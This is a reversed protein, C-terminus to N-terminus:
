GEMYHIDFWIVDCPIEKERFTDAIERVRADPYYSWRCQHYGLSWRPPMSITGTLSALGKTVEQPSKGEVVIVPFSPANEPVSFVIGDRLDLQSIWTTDFLIGFSSGDERVGMVWPHSQYLSEQDGYQPRDKNELDIRYGNRLLSGTVEGTGYLDIEPGVEFFAYKRSNANAFVPRMDWSDKLKSVGEFQRQLAMSPPLKGIDVGAAYFRAVNDFLMEATGTATANAQLEKVLESPEDDATVIDQWSDAIVLEDFEWECGVEGCRLRIEDFSLEAQVSNWIQKPQREISRRCMPDLAVSVEADDSGAPNIKIVVMHVDNRILRRIDGMIVPSRDATWFRFNDSGYDNGAGFVEEGNKYLMIGGFKNKCDENLSRMLFSIYVPQEQAESLCAPKFSVGDLQNDKIRLRGGTEPHYKYNLSEELIEGGGSITKASFDEKFLVKAYGSAFMCLSLATCLWKNGM